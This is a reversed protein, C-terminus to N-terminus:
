GRNRGGGEKGADIGCTPVCARLSASLSAPQPLASERTVRNAADRAFCVFVLVFVFAFMLVIM